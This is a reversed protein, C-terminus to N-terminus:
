LVLREGHKVKRMYFLHPMPGRYGKAYAFQCLAHSQERVGHFGPQNALSNLAMAVQEYQRKNLLLTLLDYWEAMEEKSRRWTWAPKGRSVHRTLVYGLWNLKPRDAMEQLVERGMGDGPTVLLLWEVETADQPWYVVLAASALGDHRRAIRQGPSLGVGYKEHFKRFLAVAKSPCIRGGTWRTYGKSALDLVRSLASSKCRAIPTSPNAM